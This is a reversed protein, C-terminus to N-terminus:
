SERRRTRACAGFLFTWATGAVVWWPWAVYVVQYREQVQMLVALGVVSSIMAIPNLRDSGRQRTLVALLFVGLLGGFVLSAWQFVQWLLKDRGIFAVAVVVLLLGFLATSCRAVALYHAEPAPRRRLPRYIDTVATSSLAGIASSLSGMSAAFIASVLLGRLGTHAPLGHAIFYPFILDNRARVSEPLASTGAADYYGYLLTGILLFLCVIPFGAFANFLLSRQGRRLDPCTLMRQTLDQDTGLAAMNLVTAHLFLVWFSRDNNPYWDWTITHFKGANMATSLQETCHGPTAWFLYGVVVAAAALYLSAQFLDTWLIAKIGGFTTYAMAVLTGGVIVVRPDWEFVIAIAQSAALLRIGSGLIRSAFFLLSATTRTRPGFRQGLYEYVTTVAGGYFAPLLLYVILMRGVFSGAYMQLYNWDGRFADAPVLILTVASIETAIISVGALLWHQRRGGLFFDHTNRGGRGFWLGIALTCAFYAGLITLDLWDM